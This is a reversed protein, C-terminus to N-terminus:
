RDESILLRVFNKEGVRITSAGLEKSLRHVRLRSGPTMEKLIAIKM